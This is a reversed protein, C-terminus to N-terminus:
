RRSEQNHHLTSFFRHSSQTVIPLNGCGVRKELLDPRDEIPKRWAEKIPYGLVLLTVGGLVVRSIWKNRAGVRPSMPTPNTESGYARSYAHTIHAILIAFSIVSAMLYRGVFIPKVLESILWTAPVISLFAFSLLLLSRERLVLQPQDASDVKGSGAGLVRLAVLALLSAAIVALNGFNNSSPDLVKLLDGFTPSPIWGRQRVAEAQALYSPIYFVLTAQGAIVAAYARLRFRRAIVDTILLAILFAGSYFLGFLHTHVVAAHLGVIGALQYASLKSSTNIKDYQYVLLACLFTFLGYMRAEVNQALVLRSTLFASSVGIWCPWFGYLRRLTAWLIIIAGGFALSSFLRLSLDSAGFAQSWIWGTIFYLGPTNNIAANFGQWMHALSQDSVLYWSYLEDNWFPKKPSGIICAAILSIVGALPALWEVARLSISQEPREDEQRVPLGTETKTRSM